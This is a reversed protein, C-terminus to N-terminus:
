ALGDDDYLYGIFDIAHVLTALIIFYELVKLQFLFHIEFVIDKGVAQM